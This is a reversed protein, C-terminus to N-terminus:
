IHLNDKKYLEQSLSKRKNYPTRIKKTMHNFQKYNSPIKLKM